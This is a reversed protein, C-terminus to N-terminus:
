KAILTYPQDSEYDRVYVDHKSDVSGDKIIQGTHSDVIHFWDYYFSGLRKYADELNDFDGKFDDWGGNPYYDCGGFVYFRKM